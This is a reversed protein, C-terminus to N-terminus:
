WVDAMHSSQRCCWSGPIWGSLAIAMWEADVPGGAVEQPAEGMLRQLVGRSGRWVVYRLLYVRERTAPEAAVRKRRDARWDDGMKAWDGRGVRHVDHIKRVIDRGLWEGTESEVM